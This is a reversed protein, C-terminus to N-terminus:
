QLRGRYSTHVKGAHTVEWNDTPLLKQVCVGDLFIGAPGIHVEKEYQIAGWHLRGNIKLGTLENPGDFLMLAASM